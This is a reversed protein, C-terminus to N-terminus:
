KLIIEAVNFVNFYYEHAAIIGAFYNRFLKLCTEARQFLKKESVRRHLSFYNQFIKIKRTVAANTSRLKSNILIMLHCQGNDPIQLSFQAASVSIEAVDRCHRLVEQKM